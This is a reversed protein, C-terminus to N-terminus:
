ALYQILSHIWNWKPRLFSLLVPVGPHSLPQTDAKPEPRSGQTGPELGVDPEKHLAQKERQRHGQREKETDSM